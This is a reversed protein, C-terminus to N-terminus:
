PTQFSTVFQLNCKVEMKVVNKFYGALNTERSGSAYLLSAPRQRQRFLEYTVDSIFTLDEM